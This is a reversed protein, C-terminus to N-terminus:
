APHVPESVVVAWVLRLELVLLALARGLRVVSLVLALRGLVLPLRIVRVVVQHAVPDVVAVLGWLARLVELVRVVVPVPALVQRLVPLLRRVVVLVPLVLPVSSARPALVRVALLRGVLVPM